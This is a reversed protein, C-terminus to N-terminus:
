PLARREAAPFRDRRQEHCSEELLRRLIREAIASGEGGIYHHHMAPTTNVELFVGGSEALPMGPDNTLVDVGAFRSGIAEILPVLSRALEHCVMETICETYVTRLEVTRPQDAPLYRAVTEVGDPPVSDPLMGQASLTCLTLPDSALDARGARALLARVSSRGDGVVHVGRRRVAHIFEGDLYLLRCSEAPVMREIMFKDSYLSALAAARQLEHGTHVHMTVGVGASRNAPKVVFPGTDANMFRRASELDSPAFVQHPATPIGFRRALECCYPKEAAIRLTVPDDMQVLYNAIRTHESGRRVEWIDHCLPHFTAGLNQAAAEWYMRYEAVRQDLYTTRTRGLLNHAARELRWRLRYASFGLARCKAPLSLDAM